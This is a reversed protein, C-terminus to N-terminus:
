FKTVSVETLYVNCLANPEPLWYFYHMGAALKAFYPYSQYVCGQGDDWKAVDSYTRSMPDYKRLTANVQMAVFNVIYYGSTTVSVGAQMFPKLDIPGGAIPDAPDVTRNLPGWTGQYSGTWPMYDMGWMSGLGPVYVYSVSKTVRMVNQQEQASSEGIEIDARSMRLKQLLEDAVPSRGPSLALPAEDQASTWRASWSLAVLTALGYLLSRGTVSRM